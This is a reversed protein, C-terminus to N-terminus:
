LLAIQWQLQGERLKLALLADPFWKGSVEWVLLSSDPSWRAVPAGGRQSGYWGFETRIPALVKGSALDIVSNPPNGKRRLVSQSPVTVGYRGDPSRTSAPVTYGEPLTSSASDALANSAADRTWTGKHRGHYMDQIELKTETLSLVKFYDTRHSGYSKYQLVGDRVDWIDPKLGEDNPVSGDQKLVISQGSPGRWSGILQRRLASDDARAAGPILLLTALLTLAATTLKAKMPNSRKRLNVAM